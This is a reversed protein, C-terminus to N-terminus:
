TWAGPLRGVEFPRGERCARRIGAVIWGRHWAREIEDLEARTVPPSWPRVEVSTDHDLRVRVRHGCRELAILFPLPAATLCRRPQGENM